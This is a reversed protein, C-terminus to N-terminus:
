WCCKYRLSNTSSSDLAPGDNNSDCSGRNWTLYEDDTNGSPEVRAHDGYWGTSFSTSNYPNSVVGCMAQFDSHTCVHGDVKTCEGIATHIPAAARMTSEMCLRGGKASWWGSPCALAADLTGDVQLDGEVTADGEVTLNAEFTSDGTVTGGTLALYVSDLEDTLEEANHYAVDEAWGEITAQDVAFTTGSLTLGTGAAFAYDDDLATKLEAETHYAVSEAWGEVTAQDVAFTTGALTLGTGATYTTDDDVGDAFGTPVNDIGSWDPTYDAPLYVSDLVARLEDPTHYAVAAAWDEIQVQDPISDLVEEAPLGDLARADGAIAAFGAYAVSGIPVLPMEEDSGVTVGLHPTTADAFLALDLPEVAGLYVTFNGSAVEVTQSETWLTESRAADSYLTFVVETPGDVLEDAATRLNGHVPLLEPAAHAAIPLMLAAVLSAALTLPRM